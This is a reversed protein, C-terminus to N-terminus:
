ETEAELAAGSIRRMVRRDTITVLLLDQGHRAYVQGPPPADLDYVRWDRLMVLPVDSAVESGIALVEDPAALPARAPGLPDPAPPPAEPIVLREPEPSPLKDAILGRPPDRREIVVYPSYGQRYRWGRRDGHGRRPTPIVIGGYGQGAFGPVGGGSQVFGRSDGFRFGFKASFGDAAVPTVALSAILVTLSLAKTSM